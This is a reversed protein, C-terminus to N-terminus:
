KKQNFFYSEMAQANRMTQHYRSAVSAATRQAGYEKQKGSFCKAMKERNREELVKIEVGLDTCEQILSRLQRLEQTYTQQHDRIEQRVRGYVSVFGDDLENLRSILVEKQNLTKELMVEDFEESDAIRSQERTLQLVEGLVDVQKQLTNILIQVYNGGETMNM